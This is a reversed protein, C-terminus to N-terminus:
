TVQVWVHRIQTLIGVVFIEHKEHKPGKKVKSSPSNVQLISSTCYLLIFFSNQNVKYSYNQRREDEFEFTLLHLNIKGVTKERSVATEFGKKLGQEM